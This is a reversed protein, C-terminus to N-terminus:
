KIAGKATLIKDVTFIDKDGRGSLNVVLLQTKTPDQKILKLAYALAHSSELAPIIGEHQALAQFAELAEDDTISEYDARGIAHLHAHQPGVSPFDLGASISYSEEIQGDKTQMIPSRMGFYIGVSGHRLPAGHEGTEIGKGAPEIGILRVSKEEIFDAFMGIANSGGGVAAIVADPLHGEKELIQRKTEEGIMKQFERVITPFPHPGAATGLLYHTTAYNAAWDRMAECCADKLSCSGKQVPIVEAGMLKMRFVNPSQREVDKAGMYIRCPINLMACALATAVGHQGAGTEAIIRTKGMRKALLIQGLVQNTKHAGGHLLDERKLYLTTNTGKTLNRCCTLATPRGAYNKLLDQFEQQFAPDEKAEVFAKELEQLVPVLIEPVFMGGFEGFYPNLITTM